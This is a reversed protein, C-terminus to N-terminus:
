KFDICAEFYKKGEPNEGIIFISGKECHSRSIKMTEGMLAENHYTIRFNKLKMDQLEREELADFCLDAYKSNNLHGNPDLGSYRVKAEYISFVEEPSSVKAPTDGVSDLKNEAVEFPFASPRLVRRKDIDVLAWSTRARCIETANADYIRFDRLWLVGKSGKHWTRIRINELYRPLREVEIDLTSLVWAMGKEKMKYWTIGMAEIHGDAARQMLGLLSSMRCELKYDSYDSTIVHEEIHVNNLNVPM